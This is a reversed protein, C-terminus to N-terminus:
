RNKDLFGSEVERLSSIQEDGSAAGGRRLWAANMGASRAGEVDLELSHGVHLVQESAFGLTEAALNFMVSSPKTFASECSVLIAEFYKDLALARLLPRLRDDWN